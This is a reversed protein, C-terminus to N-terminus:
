MVFFFGGFGGGGVVATHAEKCSLLSGVSVGSCYNHAVKCSLLSGVSGGVVATHAM